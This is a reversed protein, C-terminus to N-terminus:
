WVLFGLTPVPTQVFQESEPFSEMGIPSSLWVLSVFFIALIASEFRSEGSVFAYKRRLICNHWILMVDGM